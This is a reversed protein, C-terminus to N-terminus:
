TPRLRACEGPSWPTEKTLSRGPSIAHPRTSKHGRPPFSLSVVHTQLFCKLIRCLSRTSVTLSLTQGRNELKDDSAYFTFTQMVNAGARLFERHLQRVALCVCVTVDDGFIFQKSRTFQAGATTM